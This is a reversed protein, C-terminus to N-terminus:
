FPLEKDGGQKKDNDVFVTVNHAERGAWTGKKIIDKGEYEVKTWAGPKVNAMQFALHGAGNLVVREGDETTFEYDYKDNGFKSPRKATYWGEVLTDGKQADNYKVFRVSGGSSVREYAM